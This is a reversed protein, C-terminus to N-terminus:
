RSLPSSLLFANQKREARMFWEAVAHAGKLPEYPCVPPSRATSVM